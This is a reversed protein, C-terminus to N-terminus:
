PLDIQVLMFSHIIIDKQQRRKSKKWNDTSTLTIAVIEKACVCVYVMSWWDMRMHNHWSNDTYKM